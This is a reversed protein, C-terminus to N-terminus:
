LLKIKDEKSNYRLLLGHRGWEIMWESAVDSDIEHLEETLFNSLEEKTIEKEEKQSVFEILKKFQDLTILRNGLHKKRGRTGDSLFKSGEDTLLIDGSEARLFGLFEAAEIVPLLDDLELSLDDAIKAVDVKGGFDELAELLGIVRSYHVRPISM